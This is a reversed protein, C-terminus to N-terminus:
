DTARTLDLWWQFIEFMARGSEPVMQEFAQRQEEPPLRNLTLDSAAEFAPILAQEWYHGNIYLGFGSAIENWHSPLVGWPASPALLVLAKARGQAALMQAILGGMSHGVIIPPEGLGDILQAIDQAYTRISTTGLANLASPEIPPTHHRLDPAHVKYSAAEFARILNSLSQARCFAGHIFVVSPRESM